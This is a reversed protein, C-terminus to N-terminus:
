GAAKKADTAQRNPDRRYDQSLSTLGEPLVPRDGAAAPRSAELRARTEPAVLRDYLLRVVYFFEHFDTAIEGHTHFVFRWDDTDRWMRAVPQGGFGIEYVPGPAGEPWVESMRWTDPTPEYPRRASGSPARFPSPRAGGRSAARPGQLAARDPAGLRKDIWATVTRHEM